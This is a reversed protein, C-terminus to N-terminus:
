KNRTWLYEFYGLVRSQLAASLGQEKMYGQLYLTWAYTHGNCLTVSLPTHVM